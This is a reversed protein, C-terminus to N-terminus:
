LGLDVDCDNLLKQRLVTQQFEVTDKSVVGQIGGALAQLGDFEEINPAPLTMFVSTILMMPLGLMRRYGSATKWCILDVQQKERERCWDRLDPSQKWARMAMFPWGGHAAGTANIPTGCDHM